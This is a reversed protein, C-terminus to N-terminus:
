DIPDPTVLGQLSWGGEGAQVFAEQWTGGASELLAANATKLEVQQGAFESAAEEWGRNHGMCMVCGTGQETFQSVTEQLHKATEGDMAAVTYYSGLFRVVAKRFLPVENMMVELTERTRASNSCLIIDPIWGLQQLKQAVSSAGRRGRKSLPRDHDRLSPDAWSSKAHRLLILRRQLVPPAEEVAVSDSFDTLQAQSSGDSAKWTSNRSHQERAKWHIRRYPELKTLPLWLQSAALRLGELFQPAVLPSANLSQTASSSTVNSSSNDATTPTLPSHLPLQIIAAM